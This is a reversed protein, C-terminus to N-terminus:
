VLRYIPRRPGWCAGPPPVWATGGACVLAANCRMQDASRAGPRPDVDWAFFSWSAGRREGAAAPHARPALASELPRRCSAIRPRPWPGHRANGRHLSAPQSSSKKKKQYTLSAPQASLGGAAAQATTCNESPRKGGGRPEGCHRAASTSRRRGGTTACRAACAGSRPMTAAPSAVAARAPPSLVPPPRPSGSSVPALAHSYRDEDFVLPVPRGHAFCRPGRQVSSRWKCSLARVTRGCPPEHSAIKLPPTDRQARWPSARVSSGVSRSRRRACPRDTDHVARRLLSSHAPRPPAPAKAADNRPGRRVAM